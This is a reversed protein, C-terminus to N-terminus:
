LSPSSRSARRSLSPSGRSARRPIPTSSVLGARRWVEPALPKDRSHVKLIALRGAKDPLDVPVRRDFRGPRLLASDLIDARNTAAIVIVGSNGAFGDM